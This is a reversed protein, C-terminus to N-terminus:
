RLDLRLDLEAPPSSGGLRRRPEFGRPQRPQSLESGEGAKELRFHGHALFRGLTSQFADNGAVRCNAPDVALLTLQAVAAIQDLVKGLVGVEELGRIQQPM